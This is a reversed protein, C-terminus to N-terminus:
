EISQPRLRYFRSNRQAYQEAFLESQKRYPEDLFRPQSRMWFMHHGVEHRLVYDLMFCKLAEASWHCWIRNNCKEIRMGYSKEVILFKDADKEKVSAPQQYAYTDPYSFLRITPKEGFAYSGNADNKKSTTCALGVAWIGQIDSAPFQAMQSEIEEITCPYVRNGCLAEQFFRIVPIEKRRVAVCGEEYGIPRGNPPCLRLGVPNVTNM